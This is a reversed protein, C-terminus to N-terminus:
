KPSFLYLVPFYYTSNNQCAYRIIKKKTVTNDKNESREINVILSSSEELVAFSFFQPNSFITSALTIGDRGPCLYSQHKDLIQM